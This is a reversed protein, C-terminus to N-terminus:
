KAKGSSAWAKHNTFEHAEHMSWTFIPIEGANHRCVELSISAYSRMLVTFFGKIPFVLFLTRNGESDKAKALSRSSNRQFKVPTM